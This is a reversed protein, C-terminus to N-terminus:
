VTLIEVFTEVNEKRSSKAENMKGEELEDRDGYEYDYHDSSADDDGNGKYGEDEEQKENLERLLKMERKSFDKMESEIKIINSNETTAHENPTEIFSSPTELGFAEREKILHALQNEKDKIENFDTGKITEQEIGNDFTEVIDHTKADEQVNILYGDFTTDHQDSTKIMDVAVKNEDLVNLDPNTNKTSYDVIQSWKEVHKPAHKLLKKVNKHQALSPTPDQGLAEQTQIIKHLPHILRHLEKIYDSMGFMGLTSQTETEDIKAPIGSLKKSLDDRTFKKSKKNSKKSHHSHHRHKSRRDANAREVFPAFRHAIDHYRPETGYNVESGRNMNDTAENLRNSADIAYSISLVSALTTIMSWFILVRCWASNSVLSELFSIQRLCRSSRRPKIQVELDRYPSELGLPDKKWTTTLVTMNPSGM